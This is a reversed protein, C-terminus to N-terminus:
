IYSLLIYGKSKAVPLWDLWGAPTRSGVLNHSITVESGLSGYFQVRKQQYQQNKLPKGGRLQIRLQM